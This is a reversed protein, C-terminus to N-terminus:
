TIRICTGRSEAPPFTIGDRTRRISFRVDAETTSSGSSTRGSRPYEPLRRGACNRPESVGCPGGARSKGAGGRRVTGSLGGRGSKCRLRQSCAGSGRRLCQGCEGGSKRRRGPQSLIGRLLDPACRRAGRCSEEVDRAAQAAGAKFGYESGRETFDHCELLYFAREPLINQSLM